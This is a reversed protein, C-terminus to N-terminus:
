VATRRFITIFLLSNRLDNRLFLQNGILKDLVDFYPWSSPSSGTKGQEKQKNRFLANLNVIKRKVDIVSVVRPALLENLQRVMAHYIPTNRKQTDM